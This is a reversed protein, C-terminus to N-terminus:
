TTAKIKYSACAASKTVTTNQTTEERENQGTIFITGTFFTKSRLRLISHWLLEIFRENKPVRVCIHWVCQGHTPLLFAPGDSPGVLLTYKFYPGSAINWSFPREFLWLRTSSCVTPCKAVTQFLPRSQLLDPKERVGGETPIRQTVIRNSLKRPRKTVKLHLHQM